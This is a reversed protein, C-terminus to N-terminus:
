LTVEMGDHAVEWGAAEVEGREPSDALLVPNSNNIHIYIRRAVDLEAFVTMSGEPGSMNMHGMRAGTKHGLGARIMEDDRYLTGDFFVLGAGRVRGALAADVTACNPLYFAEAGTADDRLRVGVTDGERTGFDAGAGADELYFAVKGPVGFVEATLGLREDAADTVEFPDGLAIPRRPVIEPDLVGFAPNAGIAGLVRESGYLAFPHNERLNILGGIHDVDANTPLVAKIPSDRLGQRPHLVPTRAIQQRLDPSANLLLWREGDASVAVSSQTRPVAAPDGARARRCNACNCNWQPFGGGAAAGLVVIRM